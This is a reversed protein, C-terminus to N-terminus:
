SEVRVSEKHLAAMVENIVTESLGLQKGQALCQDLVQKYRESQLVQQGCERKWKGIKRAVDVRKSILTWLQEDLQDIEARFSALDKM